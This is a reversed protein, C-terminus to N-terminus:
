LMEDASLEQPTLSQYLPTPAYTADSTLTVDGTGTIDRTRLANLLSTRQIGSPTESGTANSYENSIAVFISAFVTAEYFSFQKLQLLYATGDSGSQGYAKVLKYFIAVGNTADETDQAIVAANGKM